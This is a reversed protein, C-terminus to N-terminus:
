SFMIYRCITAVVIFRKIVVEHDEVGVAGIVRLVVQDFDVVQALAVFNERRDLLSVAPHPSSWLSHSKRFSSIYSFSSFRIESGVEGGAVDGFGGGVGLPVHGYAFVVARASEHTLWDTTPETTPIPCPMLSVPFASPSM